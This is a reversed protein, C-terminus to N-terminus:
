QPGGSRTPLTRLIVNSGEDPRTTFKLNFGRSDKHAWAAGIEEWIVKNNGNCSDDDCSETITVNYIHHSPVTKTTTNNSM